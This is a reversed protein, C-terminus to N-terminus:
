KILERLKTLLLSVAEGSLDGNYLDQFEAMLANIEKKIKTKYLSHDDLRIYNGQEACMKGKQLLVTEEIEFDARTTFIEMYM